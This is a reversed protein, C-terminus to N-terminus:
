RGKAKGGCAMKVMKTSTKGKKAVGDTAGGKRFPRSKMMEDAAKKSPISDGDPDNFGRTPKPAPTVPKKPPFSTPKSPVAGGSKFPMGGKAPAGKAPMSGKSPAKKAFSKQLFAPMKSPTKAM